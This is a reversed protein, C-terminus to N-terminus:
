SRGATATYRDMFYQVKDNVVVEYAPRVAKATEALEEAM